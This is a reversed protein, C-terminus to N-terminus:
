LGQRYTRGQALGLSEYCPVNWTREDNRAGSPGNQRPLNQGQGPPRVTAFEPEPSVEWPHPEPRAPQTPPVRAKRVREWAALFQARFQAVRLAELLSQQLAREVAQREQEAAKSMFQYYRQSNPGWEGALWRRLLSMQLPGIREFPARTKTCLPKILHPPLGLSGIFGTLLASRGGHKLANLRVRAKGCATRPGTSKKVNARHAALFAPTREPSKRLPM